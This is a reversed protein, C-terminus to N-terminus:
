KKDFLNFNNKELSSIVKKITRLYYYTHAFGWIIYWNFTYYKKLNMDYIVPIEREGITSRMSRKSFKIASPDIAQGVIINIYVTLSYESKGHVARIFGTAASTFGRVYAEDILKDTKAVILILKLDYGYFPKKYGLLAVDATTGFIQVNEAIKQQEM